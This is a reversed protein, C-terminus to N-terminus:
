WPDALYPFETLFPKDNKLPNPPTKPEIPAADWLAQDSLTDLTYKRGNADPSMDLFLSLFRTAVQDELRRGYPWTGTTDMDIPCVNPVFIEFSRKLPIAKHNKNWTDDPMNLQQFLTKKVRKFAELIHAADYTKHVSIPSNDHNFSTRLGLASISPGFGWGLHALRLVFSPGLAFNNAGVQKEDARENLAADAFPQGDTDVIKYQRLEDDSAAPAIDALRQWRLKAVIGAAGAGLLLLIALVVLPKSAHGAPPRRRLGLVLFILALFVIAAPILWPYRGRWGGDDRENPIAPIKGSAKRVWSEGWANVIRDENPSKTLFALPLELIVANVNGGARNDKGSYVFRYNGKEDKKFRSGTWTWPGPPLDKKVTYGLEPNAPDFNFLDNGELELLTKPIPLERANTMTVPVRYFQPAYNISRFFGPLDNFFADDRGGVFVKIKHGGTAEVTESTNLAVAATFSGGPFRLFEVKARNDAGVTVRVESPNLGLYKDKIADFYKLIAEVGADDKMPPAARPNPSILIRYLLDPDFVGTAPVSAFTLAIVVKEGGNTDDTPFGYLDYLDAPNAQIDGFISNIANPDNHDAALAISALALLVLVPFIRDPLRLNM